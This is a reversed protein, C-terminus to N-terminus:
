GSVGTAAHAEGVPKSQESGRQRLFVTFILVSAVALMESQWNQLSRNWFDSGTLYSGYGLEPQDHSQQEDNFVRWGDVSQVLWSFLWFFTMVILLSNSYVATRLGGARAWLPSNADAHRGVKQEEDTERGEEGPPKSETSGRQVFLVSLFIFMSFQLFESQWNEAVDAGFSSSGLYRLFTYTSEGHALQDGNYQHWGAIAQGVLTAVFIGLFTLTLANDRLASHKTM